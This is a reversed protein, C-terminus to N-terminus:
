RTKRRRNKLYAVAMKYLDEDTHHAKATNYAWIVIQCNEPTYGKSNDKRDVSPAFPNRDVDFSYDFDIGTVSCKDNSLELRFWEKTLTNNISKEKSRVKCYYFLKKIRFEKPDEQKWRERIERQQNKTYLKLKEPDTPRKTFGKVRKLRKM